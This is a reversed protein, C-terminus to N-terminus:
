ELSALITTTITARTRLQASGFVGAEVMSAINSPLDFSPAEEFAAGAAAALTKGGMLSTLFTTAGAPLLRVAVEM